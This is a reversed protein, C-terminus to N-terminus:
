EEKAPAAAPAPAPAAAAQVRVKSGAPVSGPSVIVREGGTLGSEISVVGRADDRPGPTVPRRVVSDGDVVLVHQDAGQGRVAAMPVVLAQRDGGTVVRGSAFMGAILEGTNRLRLTVGVQRTGADAVPDIRAVTGSFTRGPFATLTFEAPQGPRVLNAQDVPVQGRLELFDSNVVTLITQGPNVAEGENAVRDSVRGGFPATVATRGAQESAGTANSRAAALQAQAAQFQAEAARFDLESMAGAQYLTRASELQRQALSVQAQAAAVGSRAGAAQSQIGQAEIRALVQGARVASGRDVSLGRLVGGVQAKVEAVRYPELSGTLAVGAALQSTEVTAVDGAGLVTVNEPAKEAAEAEGAGEGGGCAAAGLLLLAAAAVLSRRPNIYGNM